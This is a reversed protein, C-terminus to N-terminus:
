IRPSGWCANNRGGTLVALVTRLAAVYEAHMAEAAASQNSLAAEAHSLAEGRKLLQAQVTELTAVLEEVRRSMEALAGDREALTTQLLGTSQETKALSARVSALVERGAALAALAEDRESVTTAIRAKLAEIEGLSQAHETSQAEIARHREALAALAEDRESVTTAIRAKLAEIEGPSQTHETNYAEIARHREGLPARTLAGGLVAYAARIQQATEPSTQLLPALSAPISDGPILVGLGSGHFFQFSPHQTAVREFFKWVGFERERVNTDHFLVVADESLKPRWTTFDHAVDDYLHRGDIHLLDVSGDTFYGLADNFTSRILSSFASYKESNRTAVSQFVSEDYFGAHEDGKWTDVAYATTGLGLRDIAQCFAFYSYGYHTGLEVYCRPRLAECLWFAFPAHEIWASQCIYDPVWFSAPSIAAGIDSVIRQGAVIGNEAARPGPRLEALPVAWIRSAPAATSRNDSM